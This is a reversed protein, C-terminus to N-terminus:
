YFGDGSAYEGSWYNTGMAELFGCNEARCRYLKNNGGGWAGFAIGANNYVFCDEVVNRGEMVVAHGAVFSYPKIPRNKMMPWHSYKNGDIVAGILRTGTRLRILDDTSPLRKLIANPGFRIVSFPKTKLGATAGYVMPKKHDNSGPFYVCTNEDLCKQIQERYDVSGDTVYGKPLYDRVDVFFRKSTKTGEAPLIVSFLVGTIVLIRAAKATIM